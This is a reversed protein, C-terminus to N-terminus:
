EDCKFSKAVPAPETSKTENNGEEAKSSSQTNESDEAHVILWDMAAEISQDGTAKM